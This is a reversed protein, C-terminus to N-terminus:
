AKERWESSPESSQSLADLERVFAAPDGPPGSHLGTVALRVFDGAFGRIGDGQLRSMVVEDLGQLLSPVAAVVKPTADDDARGDRGVGPSLGSGTASGGGPALSSEAWRGGPPVTVM